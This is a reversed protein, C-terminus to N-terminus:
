RTDELYSQASEKYISKKTQEYKKQYSFYQNMNYVFSDLNTIIDHMRYLPISGNSYRDIAENKISTIFYSTNNFRAIEKSENLNIHTLVIDQIMAVEPNGNTIQEDFFDAYTITNSFVFSILIILYFFYKM